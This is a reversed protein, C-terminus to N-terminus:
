IRNLAFQLLPLAGARGVTEQVLLEVTGQDLPNTMGAHKAARAAPVSIAQELEVASMAPVLESCAAIAAEL